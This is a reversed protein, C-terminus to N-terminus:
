EIEGRSLVNADEFEEAVKELFYVDEWIKEALVKADGPRAFLDWVSVPMMTPKGACLYKITYGYTEVTIVEAEFPYTKGNYYWVKDGPHFMSTKNQKM